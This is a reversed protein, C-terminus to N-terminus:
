IYANTIAAYVGHFLTVLRVNNEPKRAVLSFQMVGNTHLMVFYCQLLRNWVIYNVSNIYM